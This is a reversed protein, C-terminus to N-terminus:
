KVNVTFIGFKWNVFKKIAHYTVIHTFV